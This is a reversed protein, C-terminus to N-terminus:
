YQEPIKWRIGNKGYTNGVESDIETIPIAYSKSAIIKNITYYLSLFAALVLIILLAAKLKKM